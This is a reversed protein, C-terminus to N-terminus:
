EANGREQRQKVGLRGSYDIRGLLIPRGEFYEDTAKRAGQLHGYDDIILVGGVELQPYLHRLEHRTSEYWDTDLRLLAISSPTSEPLTEEVAGEVFHIRAPNYGTTALAAEVESRPVAGVSVDDEPAPWDDLVAGGSWDVDADTPRTMGRFTDFLYLDRDSIGLRQLTLAVAMMSGGKWVGCEVIAGPIHHNELYAISQCLAVVREVSTM